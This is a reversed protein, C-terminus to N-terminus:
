ARDPGSAACSAEGGEWRLVLKADYSAGRELGLGVQGIVEEGAPVDFDGSQVSSSTGARGTKRVDFHYTGSLPAKSAVVGELQIGGTFPQTRILCQVDGPGGARALSGPAGGYAAALPALPLALVLLLKWM